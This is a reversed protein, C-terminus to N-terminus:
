VDVGPIKVAVPEVSRQRGVKSNVPAEAAGKVEDHHCRHGSDENEYTAQLRSAREEDQTNQPRSTTCLDQRLSHM